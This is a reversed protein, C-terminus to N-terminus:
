SSYRASHGHENIAIRCYVLLHYQFKHMLAKSLLLKNLRLISNTWPSQKENLINSPLQEEGTPATDLDVQCSSIRM